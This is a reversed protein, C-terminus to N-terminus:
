EVTYFAWKYYFSEQFIKLFMVGSINEKNSIRVIDKKKNIVRKILNYRYDTKPIISIIKGKRMSFHQDYLLIYNIIDQPLKNFIYKM